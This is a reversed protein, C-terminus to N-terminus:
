SPPKGLLSSIGSPTSPWRGSSKPYNIFDWAFKPLLGNIEHSSVKSILFNRGPFAQNVIQLLQHVTRESVILLSHPLVSCWNLIEPRTDLFDTVAKQTGMLDNFAFLYVNMMISQAASKSQHNTRTRHTKRSPARLIKRSQTSLHPRSSLVASDSVAPQCDLPRQSQHLDYSTSPHSATSPRNGGLIDGSSWPCFYGLLHRLVSFVRYVVRM